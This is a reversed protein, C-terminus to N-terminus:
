RIQKDSYVGSSEGFMMVLGIKTITTHYIKKFTSM